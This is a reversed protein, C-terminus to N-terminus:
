FDSNEGDNVNLALTIKGHWAVETVSVERTDGDTVADKGLQFDTPHIM